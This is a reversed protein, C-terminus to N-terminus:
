NNDGLFVNCESCLTVLLAQKGGQGASWLLSNERFVGGSHLEKWAPPSQDAPDPQMFGMQGRLSSTQHQEGRLVSSPRERSTSQTEVKVGQESDCGQIFSKQPQPFGLEAILSYWCRILCPSFNEKGSMCRTLSNRHELNWDLELFKVNEGRGPWPRHRWCSSASHEYFADSTCWYGAKTGAACCFLCPLCKPQRKTWFFM